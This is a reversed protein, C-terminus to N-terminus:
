TPENLRAIGAEVAAIDERLQELPRNTDYGVVQRAQLDIILRQRHLRLDEIQARSGLRVYADVIQGIASPMNGKSSFGGGPQPLSSPEDRVVTAVSRV